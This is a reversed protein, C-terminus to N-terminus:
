HGSYGVSTKRKTTGLWYWLGVVLLAGCMDALVDFASVSRHPIFSQHFEDLLGYLTCIGVVGSSSWFASLRSAWPQLAFFIAGALGAYGIGHFIKDSQWFHPLQLKDGPQHSLYFITGMVILMPIFRLFSVLRYM